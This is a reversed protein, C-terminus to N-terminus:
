KIAIFGAFNLFRWFTEVQSFGAELLMRKNEIETTPSMSFELSSRKSRIQKETYGNRLKIAYYESIFLESLEATSGIVKEVIIAAAGKELSKAINRIVLVRDEIPIFQLTLISLVLDAKVKPFDKAVDCLRIDVNPMGGFLDTQRKVMDPSVDCSVVKCGQEAFLQYGRGLSSGLDLVTDGSKAFNKGISYVLARMNEYDPISRSLMDDFCISVDGDFKFGKDFVISDQM